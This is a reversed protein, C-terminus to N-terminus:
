CRISVDHVHVAKICMSSVTLTISSPCVLVSLCCTNRTFLLGVYYSVRPLKKGGSVVFLLRAYNKYKRRIWASHTRTGMGVELLGRHRATRDTGHLQQAATSRWVPRSAHRPAVPPRARGEWRQASAIGFAPARREVGRGETSSWGGSFQLLLVWCLARLQPFVSLIAKTGWLFSLWTM